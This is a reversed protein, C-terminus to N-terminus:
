LARKAILGSGLVSQAIRDSVSDLNRPSLGSLRISTATFKRIFNASSGWNRNIRPAQSFWFLTNQDTAPNTRLISYVYNYGASFNTTGGSTVSSLYAVQAPTLIIPSRIEDTMM